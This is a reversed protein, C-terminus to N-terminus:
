GMFRYKKLNTVQYEKHVVMNFIIAATNYNVVQKHWAVSQVETALSIKIV